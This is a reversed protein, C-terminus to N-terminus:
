LGGASQASLDSLDLIQDGRRGDGDDSPRSGKESHVCAYVDILVGAVGAASCAEFFTALQFKGFAVLVDRVERTILIGDVRQM